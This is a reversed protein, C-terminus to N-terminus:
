VDGVFPNGKSNPVPALLGSHNWSTAIEVIKVGSFGNPSLLNLEKKSSTSVMQKNLTCFSLFLTSCTAWHWDGTSLDKNPPDVVMSSRIRGHNGMEGSDALSNVSLRSTRSLESFAPFRYFPETAPTPGGCSSVAGDDYTVVVGRRCRSVSYVKM